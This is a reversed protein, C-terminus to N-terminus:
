PVLACRRRRLPIPANRFEWDLPRDYQDNSDDRIRRTRWKGPGGASGSLVSLGYLGFPRCSGCPGCFRVPMFQVFCFSQGPRTNDIIKILNFRLQSEVLRM